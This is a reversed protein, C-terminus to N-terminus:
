ILTPSRTSGVAQDRTSQRQIFRQRTVFTWFLRQSCYIPSKIVTRLKLIDSSFVVTARPLSACWSSTAITSRYGLGGLVVGHKM